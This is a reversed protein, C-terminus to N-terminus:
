PPSAAIVLDSNPATQGKTQYSPDRKQPKATDKKLSKAQEFLNVISLATRVRSGKKLPPMLGCKPNVEKLKALRAIEEEM